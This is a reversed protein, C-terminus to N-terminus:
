RFLRSFNVFAEVLHGYFLIYNVAKLSAKEYKSM